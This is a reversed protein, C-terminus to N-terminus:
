RIVLVPTYIKSLDLPVYVTCRAGCLKTYVYKDDHGKSLGIRSTLADRM